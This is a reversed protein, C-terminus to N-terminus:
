RTAGFQGERVADTFTRWAAGLTRGSERLEALQEATLPDCHRREDVGEPSDAEPIADLTERLYARMADPDAADIMALLRATPILVPSTRHTEEQVVTHLITSDTFSTLRLTTGATNDDYTQTEDNM